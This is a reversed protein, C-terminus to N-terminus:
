PKSLISHAAPDPSPPDFPAAQELEDMPDGRLRDHRDQRPQVALPGGALDPGTRKSKLLQWRAQTETTSPVRYGVPDAGKIVALGDLGLRADNSM